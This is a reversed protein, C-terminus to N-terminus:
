ATNLRSLLMFAVIFAAAGFGACPGAFGKLGAIALALAAILLILSCPFLSLVLFIDADTPGMHRPRPAQISIFLLLPAIVAYAKFPFVIFRLWDLKSQPIIQM